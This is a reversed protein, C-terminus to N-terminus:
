IVSIVTLISNSDNVLNEVGADDEGGILVAIIKGESVAFPLVSFEKGKYDVKTDFRFVNNNKRDWFFPELEQGMLGKQLTFIMFDKAPLINQLRYLETWSDKKEMTFDEAKFAYKGFDLVCLSDVTFDDKVAYLIQGTEEKYYVADKDSAITNFMPFSEGRRLQYAPFEKQKKGYLDFVYILPASKVSDPYTKEPYIYFLKDRFCTLVQLNNDNLSFERKFNGSFDYVVAKQLSNIYVEQRNENISFDTLMMYEGPGQGVKGINRIFKGRIDFVSLKGETDLIFFYAGSKIIKRVEAFLSEETTELPIVSEIKVQKLTRNQSSEELAKELNLTSLDAQSSSSCALSFLVVSLYYVRKKM